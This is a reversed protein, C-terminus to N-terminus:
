INNYVFLPRHLMNFYDIYVLDTAVNVGFNGFRFLANDDEQNDTNWFPHTIIYKKNKNENELYFIKNEYNKLEFEPFSAQFISGALEMKDKINRVEDFDWDTDVAGAKYSTNSLLRLYSLGLLPDIIPHFSQNYFYKLAREDSLLSEYVKYEGNFLNNLLDTFNDNLFSVFGSGNAL